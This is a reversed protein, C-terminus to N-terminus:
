TIETDRAVGDLTDPITQHLVTRKLDKVDGVRGDTGEFLDSEQSTERFQHLQTEGVWMPSM